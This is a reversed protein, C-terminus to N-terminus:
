LTILDKVNDFISTGIDTVEMLEDLYAFPHIDERYAIIREALISGVSPLTKLEEKTAQNISIKNDAIQPVYITISKQIILYPNIADFDTNTLTGGAMDIVDQLFCGSELTYTGPTKVNGTITVNVEEVDDLDDFFDSPLLEVPNSLQSYFKARQKEIAQLGSIVVFIFVVVGIIVKM